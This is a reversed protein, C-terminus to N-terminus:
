RDEHVANKWKGAVEELARHSAGDPLWARAVAAEQLERARRRVASGKEGPNMLEKVAAAVEERSVVGGDGGRAVPRLAVGAVETLIVTNMKQEAYLPWAIMPVGSSVSELTSNWGCHSVFEATAPHALVRVQPAWSAVALGRGSTREVFGEPLFDMPNGHGAGMSYPLRGTSPMRVVWLFNHGSMELGAALERTQEVSLAGGSGFSVYVVSEAPQRDLWELCASEDADKAPRVARRPVGASVYVVSGAPQRDLWELCASEDPDENSNPRVFPGVLYVPPFAGNEADRRFAEAAGPEMEPFSNVLFGDAGGYRRGEELVYAYNPDACDQFGDPIEDHRLPACGPLVLPDPLDRYEGAAADDHLEVVSRVVSIFSISTPFFVYGPVGLEAALALAPTGFFDCVIAATTSGIGVVLARLQPVFRRMVEYMLCGGVDAPPPLVATAVSAPLSSLVAADTAPDSLGALTVLTAAVGHHDALRRALEAMPILHGAGPSALLVVHPRHDEATTSAFPEMLQRYSPTTHSQTNHTSSLDEHVANKWKGAVEELARRSAGDPSWARAAVAAQLERARRRAASGKEGPDMLEKVAAAVEERSVVGGRAVPRLPLAVGAVEKLIAANMKQEAHLPWAIMPVGSSVSELASNWGCHSVFAATAPHALVRVQPAWSAVALGRGNTREVFGEPLFDMPNGYSAGMSSLLGGTRPMRVVWLFRHGSMELGAALDRTQEVSLAGGSGFSVYVVSEAPQRDLWELCASEDADKAPRVARRPVGASVYVVSGAPQRDLWELCASEDPDENSNPRVFPGVLYVPPFAGNEADRRFAEAAGPEMEPFSNVLFGDAGGYRRGEELVYAYNPDACDQFGDPIEDHRLPACGPLVLPDPLDRYEGAAADDHLEVVSRVVSIFSISTPFFVYGPVGLEAALALAPTGFFDCVIAATTSGIGVVLARLQPVFRRMVEYMLCGGVDAPPPLVATAVSAPLSSLVAADTAPDSLGALTVLTAAVGHHDALRRALEAMPILHGAGPSALLVVHPRHDEATTSAFPEM